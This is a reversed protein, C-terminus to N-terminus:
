RGTNRLAAAVVRIDDDAPPTIPKTNLYTLVFYLATVSLTLGVTTVKLMLKPFHETTM